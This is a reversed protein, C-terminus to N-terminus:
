GCGHGFSRLNALADSLDVGNDAEDTRWSALQDPIYRDRLNSEPSTGDSGFYQLVQLTDSLDIARNGTLDFFDWFNAPDRHGGQLATFALWRGERGDLCGDDDTDSDAALAGFTAECADGLTDADGDQQGANPANPCNDPANAIGDADVDALPVLRYVAGSGSSGHHAVYVEGAEDEGFSSILYPSNILEVASWSTGNFTAGWIRGSCYDGYIYTGWLAGSPGRHRYGGTVSCDGNVHGYEVIPLVKGTTDCGSPPEFCASGEMIDWGYNRLTTDGAAQFDIEERSGQGVDAIFLDGTLRDFSFRWPNRLGYAWIEDRGPLGVLPNTAPVYPSPANVDIRWLKGYLSNVDEAYNDPDGGSGSDGM